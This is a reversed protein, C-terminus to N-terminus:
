LALLKEVEAAVQEPDIRDAEGHPARVLANGPDGVGYSGRREPDVCTYLTLNRRGLTSALQAPGNDNAVTLDSELLIACIRPWDSVGQLDHVRECDVAGNALGKLGLLFVAVDSRESVLREALGIMGSWARDQKFRGPFLCVRTRGARGEALWVEPLEPQFKLRPPTSLKSGLGFVRGFELMADVVHRSGSSPPAVMERYCLTAGELADQRGIKRRGRALWCMIGTRAHGEFDLVFDYREARLAQALAITKGVGPTRHFIITRDVCSFSSVLPEYVRRVVWTVQLEPLQSKFSAVVRLAHAIMDLPSTMLVLIKAAETSM